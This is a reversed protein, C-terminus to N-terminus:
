PKRLALFKVSGGFTKLHQKGQRRQKRDCHKRNKKNKFRHGKRHPGAM